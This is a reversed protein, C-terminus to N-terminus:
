YTITPRGSDLGEYVREWGRFARRADQLEDLVWHNKPRGQLDRAQIDLPSFYHMPTKMILCLRRWHQPEIQSYHSIEPCNVKDTKMFHVAWDRVTVPGPLFTGDLVYEVGGARVMPAVHFWWDFEEYIQYRKTYFMWIKESNVGLKSWMDYAWIHARKFCQSRRRDGDNLMDRFLGQADDVSQLETPAFRRLENYQFHNLDLTRTDVEGPQAARIDNILYETGETRFNILVVQGVLSRLMRLNNANRPAKYIRGDAASLVLIRNSRQGEFVNFVTTVLIEQAFAKGTFAFALIFVLKKLSM